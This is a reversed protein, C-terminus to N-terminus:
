LVVETYGVRIQGGYPIAIEICLGEEPIDDRDIAPVKITLDVDGRYGSSAGWECASDRGSLKEVSHMSEPKPSPVWGGVARDLLAGMRNLEAENSFDCYHKAHTAQPKMGRVYRKEEEEYGCIELQGLATMHLIECASKKSSIPGASVYEDVIDGFNEDVWKKFTDPPMRRDANKPSRLIYENEGGSVASKYVELADRIIAPVAVQRVKAAQEINQIVWKKGSRVVHREVCVSMRSPYHTLYGFSGFTLAAIEEVSIALVTCLLVGFYLGGDVKRTLGDLCRSIVRQCCGKSLVNDAIHTQTLRSANQKRRRGAVPKEWPNDTQYGLEAEWYYLQRLARAVREHKDATQRQLCPACLEPTVERLPLHGWQSIIWAFTREYEQRTSEKWDEYKEMATKDLEWVVALPLDYTERWKEKRTEDFMESIFSPIHKRVIQELPVEEKRDKTIVKPNGEFVIRGEASEDSRFSLILTEGVARHEIRYCIPFGFYDYVNM